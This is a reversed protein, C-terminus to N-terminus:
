FPPEDPSEDVFDAEENLPEIEKAPPEPKRLAQLIEVLTAHIDCLKQYSNLTQATHKTMGTQGTARYGTQRNVFQFEGCTGCKWGEYPKGTKQSVGKKYSM